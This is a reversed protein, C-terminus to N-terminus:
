YSDLTLSLFSLKFNFLIIIHFIIKSIILCAVVSYQYDIINTILLFSLLDGIILGGPRQALVWLVCVLVHAHLTM